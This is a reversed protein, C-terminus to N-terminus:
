EDGRTVAATSVKEIGRGIFGVGSAAALAAFTEISFSMEFLPRAAYCVSAVAFGWQQTPRWGRQIIQFLMSQDLRTM